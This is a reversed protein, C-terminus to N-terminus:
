SRYGRGELTELRDFRHHVEVRFSQFDEDFEHIRSELVSMADRLKGIEDYIERQTPEGNM